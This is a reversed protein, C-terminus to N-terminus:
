WPNDVGLCCPVNYDWSVSKNRDLRHNTGVALKLDGLVACVDGGRTEKVGDSLLCFTKDADRCDAGLPSGCISEAINM